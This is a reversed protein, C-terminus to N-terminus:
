DYPRATERAVPIGTRHTMWMFFATGLGTGFLLTSSVIHIFKLLVYASM